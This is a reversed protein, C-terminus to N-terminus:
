NKQSDREFKRPRQVAREGMGQLEVGHLELLDLMKEQQSATLQEWAQKNGKLDLLAARCADFRSSADRLAMDVKYLDRLIYEYQELQEPTFTIKQERKLRKPKNSM